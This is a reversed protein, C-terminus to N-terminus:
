RGGEEAEGGEEGSGGLSSRGGATAGGGVAVGLASGLVTARGDVGSGGLSSRGVTKGGELLMSIPSMVIEFWDLLVLKFEISLVTADFVAKWVFQVFSEAPKYIDLRRVFILMSVYRQTRTRLCSVKRHDSILLRTWPSLRVKACAYQGLCYQGRGFSMSGIEGVLAVVPWGPVPRESLAKEM